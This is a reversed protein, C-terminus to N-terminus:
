VPSIGYKLKLEDVIEGREQLQALHLDNRLEKIVPCDECCRGEQQSYKDTKQGILDLAMDIIACRLIAKMSDM